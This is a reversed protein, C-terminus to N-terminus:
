RLGFFALVAMIIVVAGVIYVIQNMATTEPGRCCPATPACGPHRRV